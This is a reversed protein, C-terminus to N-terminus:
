ASILLRAIRGFTRGSLDHAFVSAAGGATCVEGGSWILSSAFRGATRSPMHDHLISAARCASVILNQSWGSLLRKVAFAFFTYSSYAHIRGTRWAQHDSPISCTSRTRVVLNYSGTLPRALRSCARVTLLNLVITSASFTFLKPPCISVLSSAFRCFTWIPGPDIFVAFAVLTTLILLCGFILSGADRNRTRLSDLDQFRFVNLISETLFTYWAM